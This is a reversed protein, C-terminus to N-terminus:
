QVAPRVGLAAPEGSPLLRAFDAPVVDAMDIDPFVTIGARQFACAVFEGCTYRDGSSVNLHLHAFVRDLMLAALDRSDYGNGIQTRAWAIAAAGAGGPAPIATFSRKRGNPNLDRCVVGSPIAEIVKTDGASVAVHYFPSHTFLSITKSLGRANYFLVIDGPLIM